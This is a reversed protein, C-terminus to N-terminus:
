QALWGTRGGNSAEDIAKPLGSPRAPRNPASFTKDGSGSNALQEKLGQTTKSHVSGDGLVFNSGSLGHIDNNVGPIQNENRSWRERGRSGTPETYTVQLVSGPGTKPEGTIINTRINNTINRNGSLITSPRTEDAEHGIIYGIKANSNFYVVGGRDRDAYDFNRAETQGDSPSVCVKPTELENRMAGFHMWIYPDEEGNRLRPVAEQSGGDAYSVQMPFRDDHDTAFLRFALGVQKLNSACKIKQAKAKAKALAPLLMGALIAIIAIVVLLEILTFAGDKKNRILQRM